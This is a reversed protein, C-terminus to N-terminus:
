SKTVTYWPADVLPVAICLRVPDTALVTVTGELVAVTTSVDSPLTSAAPKTAEIVDAPPETLGGAGTVGDGTKDGVVDLGTPDPVVGGGGLSPGQEPVTVRDTPDDGTVIVSPGPM